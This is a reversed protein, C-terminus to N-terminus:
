RKNIITKLANKVPKPVMARIARRIKIPRLRRRYWREVKEYNERSLMLVEARETKMVSPFTLQRNYKSAKEYTSAWKLIGNGFLDMLRRGMENNVIMCSTGSEHDLPGGNERLLEPHVLDICWYDGITVDGPRRDSAYPCSYCNERYTYSNLFMQYYSSEEPEFYVTEGSELTMAGHLKWGQSKDRFRFATIKAERKREEFAIYDRFLKGSPVGHCIIDVTFLNQYERRLFGKLGAVQCPTGSFLVMQGEELRRRVDPYVGTLDSQVYKSGKLRILDKQETVCIHRPWLQDQEYVMACGYVAGGQEMVAQAFAAFLGGSASERVDTSGSVAAYIAKESVPPLVNQYACVKECLGCHVCKSEDVSPYVFGNEDPMM